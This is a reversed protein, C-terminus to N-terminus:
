GNCRSCNLDGKVTVTEEFAPDLLLPDPGPYTGPVYLAEVQITVEIEYSMSDGCSLATYEGYATSFSGVREMSDLDLTFCGIDNNQSTTVSGGFNATTSTSGDRCETPEFTATQVEVYPTCPIEGACLGFVNEFCAGDYTTVSAVVMISTNEDGSVTPKFSEDKCGDCILAQDGDGGPTQPAFPGAASNPSLTGLLFLAALLSRVLNSTRM